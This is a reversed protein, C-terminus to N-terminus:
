FPVDATGDEYEALAQSFYKEFAVSKNTYNAFCEVLDCTTAYGYEDALEDLPVGSGRVLLNPMRRNIEKITVADYDRAVSEYRVRRRWIEDIIGYQEKVMQRALKRCAKENPNM